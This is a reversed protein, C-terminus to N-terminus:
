MPAEEPVQVLTFGLQGARRKLNRVVRDRHRQEYFAAGPDAFPTHKSLMAYIIRALKAATAVVAKANGKSAALRRYFAGIATQTKGANVAALRLIRAVPHASRTRKSALHKGGTIRCSPALTTWAVFHAASPWRSMDTGIEAILQLATLDGLGTTVTLDVGLTLAQLSERVDPLFEKARKKKRRTKPQLPPLPVSPLSQRLHDLLQAIQQDCALISAQYADYLQLSQHLTFVHEERYEGRLAEAIEEENAKCRHDRHKALAKPDHQGAVIDRIIRLGTDGTVDAIARHLQVNMLTLAKQMRQTHASASLMLTERHRLYTRLKAFDETPRFSAHLLGYSHLKQLWQCDLVDSKRGPVNKVHRANVLCVRFGRKELIEYLPIWLVGTSEMAVTTVRCDRLWDAIEHLGRTYASYERVPQEDRDPPVAVWHTSGGLDIGAANAAVQSLAEVDIRVAKQKRRKSTTRM